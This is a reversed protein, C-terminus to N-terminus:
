PQAKLHELLREKFAQFGGSFEYRKDLSAGLGYLIDDILTEERYDLYMPQQDYTGIYKKLYAVAEAMKKQSPTLRKARRNLTTAM